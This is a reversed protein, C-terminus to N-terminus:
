EGDATESLGRPSIEVLVHFVERQWFGRQQCSDNLPRAAKRWIAVRFASQIAAIDNEVAHNFGVGYGLFLRVLGFRSWEFQSRRVDFGTISRVEDVQHAFHQDVFHRLM